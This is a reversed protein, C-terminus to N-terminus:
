KRSLPLIPRPSELNSELGWASEDCRVLLGQSSSYNRGLDAWKLLHLCFRDAVDKFHTKIHSSNQSPPKGLIEWPNKGGAITTPFSDSTSGCSPLPVCELLLQGIPPSRGAAPQISNFCWNEINEIGSSIHLFMFFFVIEPPFAFCWGKESTTCQVICREVKSATMLQWGMESLDTLCFGSRGTASPQALNFMALLLPHGPLQHNWFRFFPSQNLKALHFNIGSILQFDYQFISISCRFFWLQHILTWYSQCLVNTQKKRTLKKAWFSDSAELENFIFMDSKCMIYVYIHIYIYVNCICQM